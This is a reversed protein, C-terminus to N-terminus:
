CVKTEGSIDTEGRIGEAVSWKWNVQERLNVKVM